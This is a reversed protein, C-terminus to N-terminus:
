IGRVSSNRCTFLCQWGELVKELLQFVGPQKGIPLALADTDCDAVHTMVLRAKFCRGCM